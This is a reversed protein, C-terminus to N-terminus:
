QTRGPQQSTCGAWTDRRLLGAGTGGQGWVRTPVAGHGGVWWSWSGPQTDWLWEATGLEGASGGLSGGLGLVGATGVLHCGMGEWMRPTGTGVSGCLVARLGLHVQAAAAAVTWWRLIM